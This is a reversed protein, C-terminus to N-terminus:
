WNDSRCCDLGKAVGTSLLVWFTTM